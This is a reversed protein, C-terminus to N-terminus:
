LPILVFMYLTHVTINSLKVIYTNNYSRIKYWLCFLLAKLKQLNKVFHLLKGSLHETLCHSKLVKWLSLAFVTCTKGLNPHFGTFRSVKRESLKQQKHYLYYLSISSACFVFITGYTAELVSSLPSFKQLEDDM